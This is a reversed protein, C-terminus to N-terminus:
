KSPQSGFPFGPTGQITGGKIVKVDKPFSRLSAVKLGINYKIDLLEIIGLSQGKTDFLEIKIPNLSNKELYFIGKGFDGKQNQKLTATLIYVDKKDIKKEEVTLDYTKELETFISTPNTLDISSTTTQKQEIKSQVVQNTIPSYMSLLNKENDILMVTGKFTDPELYTIRVITPNTITEIKLRYTLKTTQTSGSSVGTINMSMKIDVYSDKIDKTNSKIKDILEKPTIAFALSSIAVIFCILIVTVLIKRQM